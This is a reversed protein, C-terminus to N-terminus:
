RLRMNSMADIYQKIKVRAGISVLCNSLIESFIHQTIIKKFAEEKTRFTAVLPTRVNALM